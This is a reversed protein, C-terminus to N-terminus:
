RSSSIDGYKDLKLLYTVFQCSSLCVLFESNNQIPTCVDWSHRWFITFMYRMQFHLYGWIQRIKTLFYCVLLSVSMCFFDSNNQILTYVDWSNRWFIKFIYRMQFHLYGSIELKLLSTALQCVSLCLFLSVSM